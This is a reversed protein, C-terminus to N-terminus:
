RPPKGASKAARCAAVSDGCGAPRPWSLTLPRLSLGRLACRVCLVCVPVGAAPVMDFSRVHANSKSCLACSVEVLRAPDTRGTCCALAHDFVVATRSRCRLSLQTWWDRSGMEGQGTRGGRARGAADQRRRQAASGGSIERTGASGCDEASGRGGTRDDDAAVAQGVSQGRASARSPRRTTARHTYSM